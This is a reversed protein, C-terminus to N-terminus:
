QSSELARILADAPDFRARGVKINPKRGGKRAAAMEDLMKQYAVKAEAMKGDQRAVSREKEGRYLEAASNSAVPQARPTTPTVVLRGDVNKFRSPPRSDAKRQRGKELNAARIANLEETSLRAREKRTRGRGGALGAIRAIESRREPTLSAARAHGKARQSEAYTM